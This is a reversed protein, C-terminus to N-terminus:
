GRTKSADTPELDPLRMSLRDGLLEYLRTHTGERFLYADQEGFVAKAM